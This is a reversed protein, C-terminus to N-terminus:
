VTKPVTAAGKQRRLPKSAKSEALFQRLEVEDFTRVFWRHYGFVNFVLVIKHPKGQQVLKALCMAGERSDKENPLPGAAKLVDHATLKAAVPQAKRRQYIPQNRPLTM